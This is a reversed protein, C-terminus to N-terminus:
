TFLISQLIFLTKIFLLLCLEEMLLIDISQHRFSRTIDVCILLDLPRKMFRLLFCYMPARARISNRSITGGFLLAQLIKLVRDMFLDEYEIRIWAIM